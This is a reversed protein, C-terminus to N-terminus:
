RPGPEDRPPSNDDEEPEEDLLEEPVHHMKWVDDSPTPPAPRATLYALLRRRFRIMALTAVIFIGFIGGAALLWYRAMKSWQAALGATDQNSSAARVRYREMDSQQNLVIGISIVICVIGLLM